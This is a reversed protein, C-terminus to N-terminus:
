LKIFKGSNKKNLEIHEFNSANEIWNRHGQICSEIQNVSILEKGHRNWYIIKHEMNEAIEKTFQGNLEMLNKLYELHRIKNLRKRRIKDQRTGTNTDFKIGLLSKWNRNTFFETKENNLKWGLDTFISNIFKIFGWSVYDYECEKTFIINIDDAYSVFKVGKINLGNLRLLLPRQFINYLFPSFTGGQFMEEKDNTLINAIIGAQNKTFYNRFLLYLDGKKIQNFANSLDLNVLNDGKHLKIDLTSTGKAFGFQNHMTNDFIKFLKLKEDNRTYKDYFQCTRFNKFDKSNWSKRGKTKKDKSVYLTNLGKKYNNKHSLIFNGIEILKTKTSKNYVKKTIYKIDNDQNREFFDIIMLSHADQDIIDEVKDEKTALILKVVYFEANNIEFSKDEKDLINKLMGSNKGTLGFKM